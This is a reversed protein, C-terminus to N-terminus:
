NILRFMFIYKVKVNDLLTGLKTANIVNWNNKETEKHVIRQFTVSKKALIANKKAKNKLVTKPWIDQNNVIIVDQVMHDTTTITIEKDEKKDKYEKILATELM